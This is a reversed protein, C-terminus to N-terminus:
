LKSKKEKHSYGFKQGAARTIFECESGHGSRSKPTKWDKGYIYECYGDPNSPIPYDFGGKSISGTNKFHKDSVLQVEWGPWRTVRKGDKYPYYFFFDGNCQVEKGSESKVSATKGQSDKLGMGIYPIQHYDDADEGEPFLKNILTQINTPRVLNFEKAIDELFEKTVTEGFIAMDCDNDNRIMDGDRHLGLLSGYDLFCKVNHKKCLQVQKKLFKMKMKNFEKQTAESLQSEKRLTGENLENENLFENFNFVHKEV